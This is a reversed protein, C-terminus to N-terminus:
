GTEEFLPTDATQPTSFYDAFNGAGTIAGQQLDSFPTVRQGQWVNENQGMTPGYLELAEALWRRQEATRSDSQTQSSGQSQGGGGSM